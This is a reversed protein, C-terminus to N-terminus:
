FYSEGVILINYLLQYLEKNNELNKYIDDFLTNKEYIIINVARQVGTPTWDKDLKEEICQCIRSVLFPYGNTYRYIEKSIKAINMGTHHETEYEKLMTSIETSNFSMDVDFDVAINWPSNYVKDESLTPIYTGEVIMKLKINKIDYVGALIVSHFTYDKGVQRNLFLITIQM